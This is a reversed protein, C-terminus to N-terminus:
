QTMEVQREIKDKKATKAKRMPIKFDMFTLARWLWELPGYRFRNLWYVSFAVQLGFCVFSLLLSWTTGIYRHLAFGFGYYMITGGVGQMVYNTLSMRGYYALHSYIKPKSNIVYLLSIGFVIVGTIMLSEYSVCLTHALYRQINTWGTLPLAKRLGFFVLSFILCVALGTRLQKKRQSLNEFFGARGMLMGAIFLFFLQLFRGNYVSWAWGSLRGKWLNHQALALLSDGLKADRAERWYSPISRVYQYDQTIFSQIMDYIIPLQIVFLLGVWRLTQSRLPYLLLLPMGMLAYIHLIDGDYLLSHAFGFALLIVLRWLFRMRFDTGKAEQRKMQIYFSLGFLLAFVSYAKGSIAHFVWDFVAADTEKSFIFNTEPPVFLNFHEIFHIIIILFLAFGRLADIITIRKQLASM